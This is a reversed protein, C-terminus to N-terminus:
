PMVYAVDNVVIDSALAPTFQVAEKFEQQAMEANGFKYEFVFEATDGENGTLFKKLKLFDESRLDVTTIRSGSEDVLEVGLVGLYRIFGIDRADVDKIGDRVLKLTLTFRLYQYDNKETYTLSTNALLADLIETIDKERFVQARCRIHAAVDTNYVLQIDSNRMIQQFAQDLTGREIRVSLAQALLSAPFALAGGLMLACFCNVIRKMLM